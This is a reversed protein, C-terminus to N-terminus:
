FTNTMNKFKEISVKIIDVRPSEGQQQTSCLNTISVIGAQLASSGAQYVANLPNLISEHFSKHNNQSLVFNDLIELNSFIINNNLKKDLEQFESLNKNARIKNKLNDDLFVQGLFVDTSFNKVVIVNSLRNIINNKRDIEESIIKITEENKNKKEQSLNNQSFFDELFSSDGNKAFQYPYLLKMETLVKKSKDISFQQANLDNSNILVRKERFKLFAERWTLFSLMVEFSNIENTQQVSQSSVTVSKQHM